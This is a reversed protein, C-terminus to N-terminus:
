ERWAKLMVTARSPHKLERKATNLLQNIRCGTLNLKKGIEECSKGRLHERIVYQLRSTLTNIQDQVVEAVLRQDIQDRFDSTEVWHKEQVKVPDSGFGAPLPEQVPWWYRKRPREDVEDVGSARHIGRFSSVM